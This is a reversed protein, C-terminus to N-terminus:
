FRGLYERHRLLGVVLERSRVGSELRPTWYALSASSPVRRLMVFFATTIRTDTGVLARHEPHESFHLLMQARSMGADIKRQWYDLSAPSPDREFANRFLESAFCHPQRCLFKRYLRFKDATGVKFSANNLIHFALFM